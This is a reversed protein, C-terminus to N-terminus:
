VREAKGSYIYIKFGKGIESEVRISGGMKEAIKKVTALGIGNGLQGFKDKEAVVEFIRFIKEQHEAVIGPGNDQM